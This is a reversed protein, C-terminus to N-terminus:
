WDIALTLQERYSGALENGSLTPKIQVRTQDASGTGIRELSADATVGDSGVLMASFAISEAQRSEDSPRLTRAGDSKLHIHYPTGPPCTVEIMGTATLQRQRAEAVLQLDTNAEGIKCTVPIIASIDLLATETEASAVTATIAACLLLAGRLARFNLVGECTGIIHM